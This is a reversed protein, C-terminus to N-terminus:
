RGLVTVSAVAPGGAMWGGGNEALAVRAGPVQRAGCRARLQDVLEVIQACGTAGVPHGRSLLGGSPNLPLRGTLASGGSRLLDVGGGEPVLGLEEPVFLEAPAAADHLEVVDVDAPTIGAQAYAKRAARTVVHDGRPEGERRSLVTTALVRVPDADLRELGTRSALLLAAAGDGIPSCMLLTLPDSILRSSLVQEVTVPDRYQATPNGAANAHSKVVVAAFDERTAGSREAYERTMEAYLDMFLSQNPAADLDFEERDVAGNFAGFTRTRDVHTMKEAGVVLAVDLQGAAIAGVALHFATSSSACANEVNIVPLGLLGTHRLAIQGRISEQGSILGAVANAFYVAEVDDPQAGADSLAAAVAEEAFSRLSREVVKGFATSVAGAVYVERM